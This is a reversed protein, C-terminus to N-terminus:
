AFDKLRTLAEVVPRRLVYTTHGRVPDPEYAFDVLVLLWAADRSEPPHPAERIRLREAVRRALTGYQLKVANANKYRVKEALEAWTAIHSPAKFHAQLLAFHSAPLGEEMIAQFARLYEDVTGFEDDKM